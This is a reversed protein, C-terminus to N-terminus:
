KLTESNNLVSTSYLFLVDSDEFDVFRGLREPSLYRIDVLTVQAYSEFFYPAISSGFSDRFLVLRDKSAANPNTVTILSLSGSLYVEYPDRGELASLDYVGIARGNERDEIELDAFADNWLYYLPEGKVSLASQGAYVGLFDAKGLRQEYAVSLEKGMAGALVAATRGLTEQRWHTDTKYFSDLTLTDSIDILHAFPTKEALRDEFAGYDLKPIGELFAAKDPILSVYVRDSGSLYRDYVAQFRSAAYDVSSESMPYELKALFGDKSEYIQNNDRRGLISVSFLAKARRFTERAPFQDQTYSEFNKAFSGSKISSWTIKPMQALKRRESLSEGKPKHLWCALTLAIFLIPLLLFFGRKKKPM